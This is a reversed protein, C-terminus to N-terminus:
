RKISKFITKRKECGKFYVCVMYLVDKLQQIDRIQGNFLTSSANTTIVVNPRGCPIELIIHEDFGYKNGNAYAKRNWNSDIPNYRFGLKILDNETITHEM